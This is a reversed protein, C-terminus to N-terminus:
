GPSALATGCIGDRRGGLRGNRRSVGAYTEVKPRDIRVTLTRTAREGTGEIPGTMNFCPVNIVTHSRDKAYQLVTRLDRDALRLFEDGDCQITWEAGLDRLMRVATDGSNYKRMDREPLVFWKVDGRRAYEDLIDHSGDTSGNDQVLLLDVGLDLYWDLYDSLLDGQDYVHAYVVIKGSQMM